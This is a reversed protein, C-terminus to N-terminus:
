QVKKTDRTYVLLLWTLLFIVCTTVETVSVSLLTQGCPYDIQTRTKSHSTKSSQSKVLVVDYDRSTMSSTVLRRGMLVCVVYMIKHLRVSYYLVVFASFIVILLALPTEM